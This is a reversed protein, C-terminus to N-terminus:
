KDFCSRIAVYIWRMMDGTSLIIMCWFMLNIFFSFTSKDNGWEWYMKTIIIIIQQNPYAHLKIQNSGRSSNNNPWAPPRPCAVQSGRERCMYSSSEICGCWARLIIGPCGPCGPAGPPDSSFTGRLPVDNYYLLSNQEYNQLSKLSM